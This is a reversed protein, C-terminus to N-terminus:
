PVRFEKLDAMASILTCSVDLNVRNCQYKLPMKLSLGEAGFYKEVQSTPITKSVISSQPSELSKSM